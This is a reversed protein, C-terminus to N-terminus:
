QKCGPLGSAAAKAAAIKARAEVEFRRYGAETPGSNIFDAIQDTWWDNVTRDTIGLWKPGENLMAGLTKGVMWSACINGGTKCVVSDLAANAAEQAAETQQGTRQLNNVKIATLLNGVPGLYKEDFQEFARASAILGLSRKYVAICKTETAAVDVLVGAKSITPAAEAAREVFAPDVDGSATPGTDRSAGGCNAQREASARCGKADGSLKQGMCQWTLRTIQEECTLADARQHAWMVLM